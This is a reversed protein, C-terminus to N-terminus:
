GAKKLLDNLKYKKLTSKRKNTIRLLENKSQILLWYNPNINFIQGLKYAFETNIKRKGKMIMSLNAEEIEVYSAFDKNKINIADLYRRLFEGSSIISLPKKEKIYSELQLKLSILEYKIKQNFSQKKAHEQIAKQLGKYDKSNINVVGQGTGNIGGENIIKTM